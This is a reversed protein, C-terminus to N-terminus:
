ALSVRARHATLKQIVVREQTGPNQFDAVKHRHRPRGRRATAAILGQERLRPLKVLKRDKAPNPEIGALEFVM